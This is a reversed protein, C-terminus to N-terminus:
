CEFVMSGPGWWWQWNSGKVTSSSENITAVSFYDLSASARIRPRRVTHPFPSASHHTPHRSTISPSLSSTPLNVTSSIAMAIFFTHRHNHKSYNAYCSSRFSRSGQPTKMM